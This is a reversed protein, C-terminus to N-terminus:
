EIRSAVASIASVGRREDPRRWGRAAAESLKEGSFLSPSLCLRLSAVFLPVFLLVLSSRPHFFTTALFLRRRPLLLSLPRSLTLALPHAPPSLLLVASAGDHPIFILSGGLPESNFHSDCAVPPQARGASFRPSLPHSLSLFVFRLRCSFFGKEKGTTGIRRRVEAM